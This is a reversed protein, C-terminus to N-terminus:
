DIRWRAVNLDVPKPTTRTPPVAAFDAAKQPLADRRASDAHGDFFLINTIMRDRGHRGNIRFTAADSRGPDFYTGDYIFAVSSSQKVKTARVLPSYTSGAFSGMSPANNITQNNGSSNSSANMGYYSDIIVETSPDANEKGILRYAAAFRPSNISDTSTPLDGQFFEANGEPCYFVGTMVPADSVSTATPCKIFNLNYLITPWTQFYDSPINVQHSDVTFTTKKGVVWAPVSYGFQQKYMESGIGIQRLNSLCQVTKAQARARSLAPLLISILLAIIGIVVLLEVLTFGPRCAAGNGGPGPRQHSAAM